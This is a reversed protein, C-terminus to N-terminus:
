MFHENCANQHYTFSKENENYVREKLIYQHGCLVCEHIEISYWYKRKEKKTTKNTKM